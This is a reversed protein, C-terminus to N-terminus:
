SESEAGEEDTRTEIIYSGVTDSEADGSVYGVCSVVQRVQNNVVWLRWSLPKGMLSISHKRIPNDCDPQVCSNCLPEKIGKPEVMLKDVPVLKCEFAAM